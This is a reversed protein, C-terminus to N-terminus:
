SGAEENSAYAWDVGGSRPARCGFFGSLGRDELSQDLRVALVKDPQSRLLPVLRRWSLWFAEARFSEALGDPELEKAMPELVDDPRSVHSTIYVLSRRLVVGYGPLQDERMRRTLSEWQLSLQGSLQDDDETPWGSPGAHYKAEVLFVHRGRDTQLALILDPEIFGPRKAPCKPWFVMAASRIPGDIELSQGDMRTAASFWPLLLDSPPFAELVGFVNSTLVDELYRADSPLKHHNDAPLVSITM